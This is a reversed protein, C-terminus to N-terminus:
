ANGGWQTAGIGGFQFKARFGVYTGSAITCGVALVRVSQGATMPFTASGGGLANITISGPTLCYIEHVTSATLGDGLQSMNYTGGTLPVIEYNTNHFAM